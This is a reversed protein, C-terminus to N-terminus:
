KLAEELMLVDQFTEVDHTCRVLNGLLHASPSPLILVNSVAHTLNESVAPIMITSDDSAPIMFATGTLLPHPTHADIPQLSATMLTEVM